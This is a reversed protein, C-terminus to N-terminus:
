DTTGIVERKDPFDSAAGGAAYQTSASPALVVVYLHNPHNVLLQRTGYTAVSPVSSAADAIDPLAPDGQPNAASVVILATGALPDDDVTADWTAGGVTLRKVEWFRGYTPGGLDMTINAGESNSKVSGGLRVNRIGFQYAEEIKHIREFHRRLKDMSAGLAVIAGLTADGAEAEAGMEIM